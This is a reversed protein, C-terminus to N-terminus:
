RLSDLCSKCMLSHLYKSLVPVWVLMAVLQGINWEGRLGPNEIRRPTFNFIMASVMYVMFAHVFVMVLKLIWWVSRLVRKLPLFGGSRRRKKGGEPSLNQALRSQGKDHGPRKSFKLCWLYLMVAFMAWAIAVYSPMPTGDVLSSAADDQDCLARLSAHGGCGDLGGDKEFWYWLGDVTTQGSEITCALSAVLVAITCIILSYFSVMSFHHLSIQVLVIAVTCSSVIMNSERQNNRVSAINDAGYFAAGQSKGYLVAVAIAIVFFAQAESFEAALSHTAQSFNAGQLRTFFRSLRPHSDVFPEPASGLGRVKSSVYLFPSVLVNLIRRSVFAISTAWVYFVAISQLFLSM